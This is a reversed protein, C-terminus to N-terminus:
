SQLGGIESVAAAELMRQAQELAHTRKDHHSVGTLEGDIWLEARFQDWHASKIVYYVLKGMAGKEVVKDSPHERKDLIQTAM